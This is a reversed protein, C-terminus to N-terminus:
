LRRTIETMAMNEPAMGTGGQTLAAVPGFNRLTPPAYPMRNAACTHSLSDVQQKGTV